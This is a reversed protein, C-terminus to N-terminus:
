NFAEMKFLFYQADKDILRTVKSSILIARGDIEDGHNKVILTKRNCFIDAIKFCMQLIQAIWWMGNM